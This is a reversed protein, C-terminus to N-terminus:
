VNVAAEHKRMTAIRVLLKKIRAISPSERVIMARMGVIGLMGESGTSAVTSGPLM